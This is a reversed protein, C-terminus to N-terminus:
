YFCKSHLLEENFFPVAQAWNLKRERTTCRDGPQLCTFPIRSYPGGPQPLVRIARCIPLISLARSGFITLPGSIRLLYTPSDSALMLFSNASASSSCFLTLSCTVNYICMFLLTEGKKYSLFDCVNRSKDYYMLFLMVTALAKLLSNLACSFGCPLFIFVGCKPTSLHTQKIVAELCLAVVKSFKNDACWIFLWVLDTRQSWYEGMIGMFCLYANWRDLCFFVLKELLPSIQGKSLCLQLLKPLTRTHKQTHTHSHTHLPWVTICQFGAVITPKSPSVSAGLRVRWWRILPQARKSGRNSRGVCVSVCVSACVM